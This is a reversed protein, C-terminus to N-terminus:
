ASWPALQPWPCRAEFAEALELLLEDAMARGILQLGVPLAGAAVPAPVVVAPLGALNVATSFVGAARPGAPQGRIVAPYPEAKPWPLAPSAPTAIADVSNMVDGLRWRFAALADLDRVYDTAMRDAGAARQAAIAETVRGRWDKTGALVRAVGVTSLSVFLRNVEEPDWPPDIEEVAHGLDRLADLAAAFAAEVAPELPSGPFHLFAGSRLRRPACAHFQTEGQAAMLAFAVRLDRVSRAIPGIVQLDHAMPPFGHRRLVRGLTPKLGAVGAYSAPRRISGGADTAIAIPGMGSAVAAVAGGSSGGPSLDPAWPNGTAGFVRNDTHGSLAFEPTNTKGLIVAGAARLRAIPLDDRPAIHDAFLLSGWTARLGGVFLNDKVTVPVGDIPGLSRGTSWRLASDAAARSAGEFDLTVVANLRGNAAEVRELVARLTDLPSVAGAAYLTALEAATAAWLPRGAAAEPTRASM